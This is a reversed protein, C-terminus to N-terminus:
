LSTVTVTTHAIEGRDAYRKSGSWRAVQSDDAYAVGILADLVGKQLNDGDPKGLWRPASKALGTKTWHSPPRAVVFLMAVEVQGPHERLGAARAMIAVAQRYAHIPHGRPVFSMSRGRVNVTRPRPQPVPQGEVVFTIGDM